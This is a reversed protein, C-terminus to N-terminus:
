GICGASPMGVVRERRTREPCSGFGERTKYMGPLFWFEREDQVDEHLVSIKLNEFLLVKSDHTVPPSTHSSATNTIRNGNYFCM